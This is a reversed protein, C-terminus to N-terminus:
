ENKKKILLYIGASILIVPIIYELYGMKSIIDSNEVLIVFIGFIMLSVAPYIPWDWKSFARTHIFVALFAFGLFIFFLGGGLSEFFEFQQFDSFLAISLIVAGPILFGINRYHKRGGLMSYTIIFGGSLLYLFNEEGILNFTNLLLFSGLVLLLIGLKKKDM